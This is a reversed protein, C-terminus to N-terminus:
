KDFDKEDVIPVDLFEGEEMTEPPLWIKGRGYLEQQKGSPGIVPKCGATRIMTHLRSDKLADRHGMGPVTTYIHQCLDKFTFGYRYHHIGRKMEHRVMRFFVNLEDDLSDVERADDQHAKFLKTEEEGEYWWRRMEGGIRYGAVVEAFLQDRDTRLKELDIMGVRVPV